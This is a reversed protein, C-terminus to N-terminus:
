RILRFIYGERLARRQATFSENEQVFDDCIGMNKFSRSSYTEMFYGRYDGFLNPELIFM